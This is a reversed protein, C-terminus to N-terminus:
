GLVPGYMILRQGGEGPLNVNGGLGQYDSGTPGGCGGQISGSVFDEFSSPFDQAPEVFLDRENPEDVAVGLRPGVGKKSKNLLGNPIVGRNSSRLDQNCSLLVL